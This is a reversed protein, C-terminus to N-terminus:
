YFLNQNGRSRRRVIYLREGARHGDDTLNGVRRNEDDHVTPVTELSAGREHVPEARLFPDLM